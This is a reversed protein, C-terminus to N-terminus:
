ADNTDSGELSDTEVAASRLCDEKSIVFQYSKGVKLIVQRREQSIVECTV